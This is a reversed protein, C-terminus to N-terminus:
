DAYELTHDRARVLVSSTAEATRLELTVGNDYDIDLTTGQQRVGRVRGLPASAPAAPGSGVEATSGAAAAVTTQVTMTSGDDFHVVTTAGLAEVQTATRGKLVGTLKHNAAM